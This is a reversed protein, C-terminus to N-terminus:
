ENYMSAGRWLRASFNGGFRRVARRLQRTSWREAVALDLLKRAEPDMPEGYRPLLSVVESFHTLTLRAPRDQPAALREQWSVPLDDWAWRLRCYRDLQSQSLGLALALNPRSLGPMHRGVRVVWDATQKASLPRYRTEAHAYTLADWDSVWLFRVVEHGLLPDSDNLEQRLRRYLGSGALVEYGLQSGLGVRVIISPCLDEADDPLHDDMASYRPNLPSLWLDSMRLFM